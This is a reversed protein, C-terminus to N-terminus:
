WYEVVTFGHNVKERYIWEPIRVQIKDGYNTIQVQSKPFWAKQHIYVGDTRKVMLGIASATEEYNDNPVIFERDNAMQKEEVYLKSYKVSMNMNAIM